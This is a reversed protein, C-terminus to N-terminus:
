SKRAILYYLILGFVPLFVILLIWVLKSASTRSQGLLDIIAIVDLILIVLMCIGYDWPNSALEILNPGDCGTLFLVLLAILSFPLLTKQDM